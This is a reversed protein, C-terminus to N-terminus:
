RLEEELKKDYVEYWQSYKKKDREKAKSDFEEVFCDNCFMLVGVRILLKPIAGCKLCDANHYGWYWSTFSKKSLLDYVRQLHNTSSSKKRRTKLKPAKNRRNKLSPM